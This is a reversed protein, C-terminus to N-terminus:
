LHLQPMISVSSVCSVDNQFLGIRASFSLFKGFQSFALKLTDFVCWRPDNQHYKTAEIPHFYVEQKEIKPYPAFNLVWIAFLALIGALRWFELPFVPRREHLYYSL